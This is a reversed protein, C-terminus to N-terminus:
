RGTLCNHCVHQTHGARKAPWSRVCVFDWVGTVKPAPCSVPARIRASGASVSTLCRHRPSRVSLGARTNVPASASCIRFRGGSRDTSLVPLPPSGSTSAGAKGPAGPRIASCRRCLRVFTSGPTSTRLWVDRILNDTGRMKGFRTTMRTTQCSKPPLEPFRIRNVLKPAPPRAPLPCMVPIMLPVRSDQSRLPALRHLVTAQERIRSLVPSPLLRRSRMTRHRPPHQM